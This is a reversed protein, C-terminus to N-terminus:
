QNVKESECTSNSRERGRVKMSEGACLFFWKFACVCVCACVNVRVSVCM